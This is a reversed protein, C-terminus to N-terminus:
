RTSFTVQFRYMFILSGVNEHYGKPRIHKEQEVQQDRGKMFGPINLKVRLAFLDESITFGRDAMVEDGPDLYHLFGSSKTIYRDSARGGYSHSLFIIYGCPAVRVLFKVTNHSKYTSYTQARAKLSFPRQIFVETCDVIITTKPYSEKFTKPLTRQITDRPLWVITDKLQTAMIDIWTNFINSALTVSVGFRRSLDKLPLGLRLRVLTPLIQDKVPLKYPVDKGHTELTSLLSKYVPLTLGTYFMSDANTDISEASLECSSAQTSISKCLYQKIITTRAYGHELVEANTQTSSSATQVPTRMIVPDTQCQVDHSIAEATYM